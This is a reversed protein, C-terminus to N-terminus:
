SETRRIGEALSCVRYEERYGSLTMDYALSGFAKDVLGTVHAM